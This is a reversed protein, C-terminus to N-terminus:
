AAGGRGHERALLSMVLDDHYVGAVCANDRLRGEEVFGLKRYARIARTNYAIVRLGLRHLAMDGFAHDILLRLAETGIGRGLCAPDLLGVAIDARRNHPNLTHLRLGGILRNRHDIVWSLPTDIHDRVWDEALARTMPQTKAPDAGFMHLIEPVYGLALRPEVDSWQAARLTVDGRSLTPSDSRRGEGGSTDHTPHM